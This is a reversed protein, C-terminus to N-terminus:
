RRIDAVKVIATPANWIGFSWTGLGSVAIAIQFRFNRSQEFTVHHTSKEQLFFRIAKM